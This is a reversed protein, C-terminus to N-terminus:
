RHAKCLCKRWNPGAGQQKTARVTKGVVKCDGHTCAKKTAM